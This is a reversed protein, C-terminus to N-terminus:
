ERGNEGRGCDKPWRTPRGSLLGLNRAVEEPTAESYLLTTDRDSHRRMSVEWATSLMWGIASCPCYGLCIRVRRPALITQHEAPLLPRVVSM